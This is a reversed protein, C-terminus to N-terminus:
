DAQCYANTLDLSVISDCGADNQLIFTPLDNSVNSLLSVNAGVFGQWNSSDRLEISVLGSELNRFIWSNNSTTSTCEVYYQKSSQSISMFDSSHVGVAYGQSGYGSIAPDWLTLGSNGHFKFEDIVGDDYTFKISGFGDFHNDVHNIYIEVM